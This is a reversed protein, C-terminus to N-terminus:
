LSPFRRLDRAGLRLCASGLPQLWMAELESQVFDPQSCLARGVAATGAGGAPGRRGAQVRLTVPSSGPGPQVLWQSGQEPDRPIYLPTGSLM